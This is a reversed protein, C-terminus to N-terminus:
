IRREAFIVQRNLPELVIDAIADDFARLIPGYLVEPEKPTGTFLEGDKYPFLIDRVAKCLSKVCDFEPPFERM